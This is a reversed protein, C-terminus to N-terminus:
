LSNREKIVVSIPAHDSPKTGKREERDIEADRIHDVLVDSTYIHDIRLGHNKQFGLKRYDWWTFCRQTPKNIRFTDHLGWDVLRKLATREGETCLIAEDWVEPDHVDINAPAINFDGCLVLKEKKSQWQDLFIRLRALWELKYFYADSDPTQGNPVYASVVRIKGVVASILRSQEDSQNRIFGKRIDVLSQKALIAVGNYSKQGWIASRYGMELLEESPYDKDQCKLEQLCLVDPNNLQLWNLLREKRARISNVNWSAIKM